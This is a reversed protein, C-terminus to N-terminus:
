ARLPHMASYSTVSSAVKVCPYKRRVKVLQESQQTGRDKAHADTVDVELFRGFLRATVTVTSSAAPSEDATDMANVPSNSWGVLVCSAHHHTINLVLSCVMVDGMVSIIDVSDPHSHQASGSAAPSAGCVSEPEPIVVVSPTISKISCASLGGEAFQSQPFLSPPQSAALLFEQIGSDWKASMQERNMHVTLNTLGPSAGDVQHNSGSTWGSVVQSIVVGLKLAPDDDAGRGAAADMGHGWVDLVIAVCGRRVAGSCVVLRTQSLAKSLALVANDALQEPTLGQVKVSIQM